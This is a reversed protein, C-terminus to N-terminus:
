RPTCGERRLLAGKGAKNLRGYEALIRLKYAAPYQRPPRPRELVQPGPDADHTRDAGPNPPTMPDDDIPRPAREGESRWKLLALTEPFASLSPGAM